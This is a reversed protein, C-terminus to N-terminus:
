QRKAEEEAAIRKKEAEAAERAKREAELIPRLRELEAAERELEFPVHTAWRRQFLETSYHRNLMRLRCLARLNLYDLISDFIFEDNQIKRVLKNLQAPWQKKAKTTKKKNNKFTKEM